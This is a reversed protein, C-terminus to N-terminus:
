NSQQAAIIDNFYYQGYGVGSFLVALLVLLVKM